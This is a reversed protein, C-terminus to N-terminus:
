NIGEQSIKGEDSVREVKRSEDDVGEQGELTNPSGRGKRRM